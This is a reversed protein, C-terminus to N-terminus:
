SDFGEYTYVVSIGDTYYDFKNLKRLIAKGMATLDCYKELKILEEIKGHSGYRGFLM